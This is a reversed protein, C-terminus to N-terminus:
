HLTVRQGSHGGFISSHFADFLKSRLDTSSGVMIRNKYRMIGSSLTYKPNCSPDVALEQLLPRCKSDESYAAEVDSLWKPIAISLSHCYKTDPATIKRSLADAMSNTIGKRHEIMYDFELLKLM